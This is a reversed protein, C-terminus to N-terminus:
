IFLALKPCSLTAESKFHTRDAFLRLTRSKKCAHPKYIAGLNLVLLDTCSILAKSFSKSSLTLWRLGSQANQPHTHNKTEKLSIHYEKGRTRTHFPHQLTRYPEHAYTRACPTRKPEPERCRARLSGSTFVDLHFCVLLLQLLLLLLM